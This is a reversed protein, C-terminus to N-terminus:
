QQSMWQWLSLGEDFCENNFFYFWSFHGLYQYPEGDKFYKGSTDHVDPFVSKRIDKAGANELRAILPEEYKSPVVTKDNEAYVFWMPVDKIANIEDDSILEPEYIECVLYAAAFYEPYNIVLDLAMFGGNSGGGIIIRDKDVYNSDAYQDILEKLDYLFMSHDGGNEDSFYDGNENRKWYTSTQPVLVYAGDMTSQFEDGMLAVAKTGYLTILPDTGGEGAGHLWIVLPRKNSESANEPVFSAYTFTNGDKGTFVGDTNTTAVEPLFVTDKDPKNEFSIVADLAVAQKGSLLVTEGKLTKIELSYSELWKNFGDSNSYFFPSGEEPSYYLELTIYNLSSEDNVDIRNGDNDSFYVDTVSRGSSDGFVGTKKKEKVSFMDPSLEQEKELGEPVNVVAKTVAPGWDCGMVVLRGSYKQANSNMDCASLAVATMLGLLAVTFSLTKRLPHTREGKFVSIARDENSNGQITGM